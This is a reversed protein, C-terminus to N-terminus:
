RTSPNEPTDSFSRKLEDIVNGLLSSLEAARDAEVTRHLARFNILAKEARDSAVQLQSMAERILIEASGLDLRAKSTKQGHKEVVVRAEERDLTLAEERAGIRYKSEPLYAYGLAMTRFDAKRSAVRVTQDFYEVADKWRKENFAMVGLWYYTGGIRWGVDMAKAFSIDEDFLAAATVRDGQLYIMAARTFMYTERLEDSISGMHSFADEVVDIDRNMGDPNFQDMHALAAQLAINALEHWKGVSEAPQRAMGLLGYLEDFLGHAWLFGSYISALSVLEEAKGVASSWRVLQRINDLEQWFPEVPPSPEQRPNYEVLFSLTVEVQRERAAMIFDNNANLEDTLMRKTIPLMSFRDHLEADILSLRRLDSIASDRTVISQAFGAIIGLRERDASVANLALALLVDHAPTGRIKTLSRGFLAGLLDDKADVLRAHTAEFSFGSAVQAIAWVMALPLHSTATALETIQASTLDITQRSCELRILEESAQLTLPHLEIAQCDTISEQSTILVRTPAPVDRLFPWIRPDDVTEFNDVVIFTSHLALIRRLEPILEAPPLRLVDRIELVTSIEVFLDELRNISAAVPSAPPPFVTTAATVWVINEYDHGSVGGKAFFDAIEYALSTKGTGPAGRLLFIYSDSNPRLINQFEAIEPERGILRQFRRQGLNHRLIDEHSGSDKPSSEHPAPPLSLHFSYNAGPESRTLSRNSRRGLPWWNAMVAIVLLIGVATIGVACYSLPGWFSPRHHAPASQVAIYWAGATTGGVAIAGGALIYWGSWRREEM